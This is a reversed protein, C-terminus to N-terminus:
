DQRALEALMNRERIDFGNELAADIKTGAVIEHADALRLDAVTRYRQDSTKRTQRSGFRQGPLDRQDTAFVDRDAFGDPQCQILTLQPLRETPGRAWRGLAQGIDAGRQCRM